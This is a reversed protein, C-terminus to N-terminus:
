HWNLQAICGLLLVLGAAAACLSMQWLRKSAKEAHRRVETMVRLGAVMVTGDVPQQADQARCLLLQM